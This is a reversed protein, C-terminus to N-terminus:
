SISSASRPVTESDASGRVSRYYSVSGFLTARHTVEEARELGAERMLAPIRGELNDRIQQSRHLLRALVSAAAGRPPGFDLLHLSGGSRLVRRVERLTALKESGALHHFMLSSFVRDFTSEPYPLADSFGRDFRVTLGARAAKRRAIELAKPDPDLGFVETGPHLQKVRVTLTGTGCGIDLIRQGPEVESQDILAGKLSDEGLIWRLLPDYLPLLWDLGAAPLYSREDRAM